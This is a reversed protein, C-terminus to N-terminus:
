STNVVAAYGFKAKLQEIEKKGKHIERDFKKLHGSSGLIIWTRYKLVTGVFFHTDIKPSCIENLYKEKVKLSRPTTYTIVTILLKINGV